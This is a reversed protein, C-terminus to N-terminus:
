CKGSFRLGPSIQDRYKRSDYRFSLENYIQQGKKLAGPVTNMNFINNINDKNESEPNFIERTFIIHVFWNKCEM